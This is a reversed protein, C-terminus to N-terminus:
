HRTKFFYLQKTKVNSKKTQNASIIVEIKFTNLSLKYFWSGLEELQQELCNKLVNPSSSSQIIITDDAYLHPLFVQPVGCPEENITTSLTEDFITANFM